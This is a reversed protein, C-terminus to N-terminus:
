STFPKGYTEQLSKEMRRKTYEIAEEFIKLVLKKGIPVKIISPDKQIIQFIEESVKIGRGLVKKAQSPRPYAARAIEDYNKAGERLGSDVMRKISKRLYRLNKKIIKQIKPFNKHKAKLYVSTADYALLQQLLKKTLRRELTEFLLDLQTFAVKKLHRSYTSFIARFLIRLGGFYKKLIFNELHKSALNIEEKFREKIIGKVEEREM